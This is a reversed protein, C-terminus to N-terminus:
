PCIENIVSIILMKINGLKTPLEFHFYVLQIRTLVQGVYDKIGGLKIFM